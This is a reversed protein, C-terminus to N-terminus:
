RARSLASAFRHPRHVKQDSEGAQRYRVSRRTRRPETFVTFRNVVPATAPNTCRRGVASIPQREAARGPEARNPGARGQGARGGIGVPNAKSQQTYAASCSQQSHAASCLLRPAGRPEKARSRWLLLAARSPYLLLAARSPYLLLAFRASSFRVDSSGCVPNRTNLECRGPYPGPTRGVLTAVVTPLFLASFIM